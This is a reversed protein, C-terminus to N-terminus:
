IQGCCLGVLLEQQVRIQKLARQKVHPGIDFVLGLKGAHGKAKDQMQKIGFGFPLDAFLCNSREAWFFQGFRLRTARVPTIMPDFAAWQLLNRELESTVPRRPANLNFLPATHGAGVSKSNKGVRWYFVASGFPGAARFQPALLVAAM